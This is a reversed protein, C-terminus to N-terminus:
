LYIFNVMLNSICYRFLRHTGVIALQMKAFAGIQTVHLTKNNNFILKAHKVLAPRFTTSYTLHTDSFWEEDILM